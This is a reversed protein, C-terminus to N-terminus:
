EEDDIDTIDDYDDEVFEDIKSKIDLPILNDDVIDEFNIDGNYYKLKVYSDDPYKRDNFGIIESIVETDSLSPVYVVVDAKLETKENVYKWTNYIKFIRGYCEEGKKNTIRNTVIMHIGILLLSIGIFWLFTMFILFIIQGISLIQEYNFFYNRDNCIIVTVITMISTWIAGFCLEFM